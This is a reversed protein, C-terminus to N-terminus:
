KTLLRSITDLLKNQEFQGKVIYAQAGADLGKRRDEDSDRSSVIIVPLDRLRDDQKIAMSLRFGDMNPMEVDTLVLDPRHERCIKLAELGDRATEVKFGATELISRELERTALSDDVVLITHYRRQAMIPTNTNFGTSPRTLYVSNGQRVTQVLSFADLILALSDAGLVTVGAITPTNELFSGLGKVVVEREDIFSDVEFCIFRQTNEVGSAGTGVLVGHIFDQNYRAYASSALDEAPPLQLLNALPIVPMLQGRIRMVPHGEVTQLDGRSGRFTGSVMTSPLAFLQGSVGVILADITALTLPIEIQFTTGQGPGTTISIRGNLRKVNHQVLDLGVGRGSIDDAQARTSFGNRYILDLAAEDTLAAAGAQNLFGKAVAAKRLDAPNIGRGDDSIEILVRNGKQSAALKLSGEPPKGAALREQPSELGHDVSNRLLHILPDAVQELIRKDVEISGGSLSFKVEKGREFALDRIPRAFRGFITDLPLMRIGLMNQRLEDAASAFRLNYSKRERVVRSLHQEINSNRSILDEIKNFVTKLDKAGLGFVEDGRGGPSTFKDRQSRLQRSAAPGAVPAAGVRDPLAQQEFSFLETIGLLRNREEIPTREIIFDRLQIAIQNRVHAQRLLDQLASLHEENQQKNIVLEGAMNILNDLKDLRVRITEEAARQEARPEVPGPPDAFSTLPVPIIESSTKPDPADLLIAAGNGENPAPIHAQPHPPSAAGELALEPRGAMFAMKEILAQVVEPSTFISAEATGGPRSAERTLESIVDLGEFLIDITARPIELPVASDRFNAVLEEMLHAVKSIPNFGMMRAAGKITHLLRMIERIHEAQEVTAGVEELEVLERTLSVTHGDIEERFTNLLFVQQDQQHM